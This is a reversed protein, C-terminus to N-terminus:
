ETVIGFQGALCNTLPMQMPMAAARSTIDLPDSLRVPNLRVDGAIATFMCKVVPAAAQSGYGSKELYAGITYPQAPDLSYAAFVSSDNWPRNQFGQATGTKGAIPL